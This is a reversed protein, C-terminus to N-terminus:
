FVKATHWIGLVVYYQPLASHTGDHKHFGSALSAKCEGQMPLRQPSVPYTTGQKNECCNDNAVGNISLIREKRIM